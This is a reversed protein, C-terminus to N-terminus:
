IQLSSILYVIFPTKEGIREYEFEFMKVYKRTFESVDTDLVMGWNASDWTVVQYVPHNPDYSFMQVSADWMYQPKNSDMGGHIIYLVGIKEGVMCCSTPVLVLVIVLLFMLSWSKKEWNM